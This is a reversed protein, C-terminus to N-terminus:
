EVGHHPSKLSVKQPKLNKRGNREKKKKEKKGRRKQKLKSIKM